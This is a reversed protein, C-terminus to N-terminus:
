PAGYPTQGLLQRTRTASGAVLLTQLHVVGTKVRRRQLVHLQSSPQLSRCEGFRPFIVTECLSQLKPFQKKLGRATATADQNQAYVYRYRVTGPYEAKVVIDSYLGPNQKM